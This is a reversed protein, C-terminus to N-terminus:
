LPNAACNDSIIRIDRQNMFQQYTISNYQLRPTPPTFQHYFQALANIDYRNILEAILCDCYVNKNLIPAINPNKTCKERVDLWYKGIQADSPHDLRLQNQEPKQTSFLVEFENEKQLPLGIPTYLTDNKHVLWLTTEATYPRKQYNYHYYIRTRVLPLSDAPSNRVQAEIRIIQATTSIGGYQIDNNAQKQSAFRYILFLFLCLFVAVGGGVGIKQLYDRWKQRKGYQTTSYQHAIFEYAYLNNPTPNLKIECFEEDIFFSFTQKEGITITENFLVNGNLKVVARNADPLHILEVLHQKIRGYYAWERKQM